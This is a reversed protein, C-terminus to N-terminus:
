SGPSRLMRQVTRYRVYGDRAPSFRWYTVKKLSGFFPPDSRTTFREDIAVELGAFRSSINRISAGFGAIDGFDTLGADALSKSVALTYKAGELNTRVTEVSGDAAYPAIDAEMTPMWNGLFVDIDGRALSTYTVPVSLVDISTEYGLAELITTTVATTATIDSWGVDSFRVTACAEPEQALASTALLAALAGGTLLRTM